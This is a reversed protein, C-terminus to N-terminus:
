TGSHRSRELLQKGREKHYAIRDSLLDDRVVIEDGFELVDPQEESYEPWVPLGDRNPNGAKAFQVWYANMLRSMERDRESVSELDVDLTQMVFAIDDGHAAGPQHDRREEAVYSLYYQWNPRDVNKMHDGLYYAQSLIILDGFVQDAVETEDLGPYLRAKDAAPVLRAMLDPSFGGGIQRGLSAEWSNGGTMYPVAHQRGAAFLVGVHDPIVDGEIVPTFRTDPDLAAILAETTMARLAAVIDDSKDVGARKAYAKGAKEGPVQFGSRKRIHADPALGVSASQSIARHFLGEARPMIMLYNVLAGGASEGFITVNGPDGGFSAINRNVWELAAVLDLLGYNGLPEGAQAESLAPHAFFGFVSLRYNVTVLVVGQGAMAPSNLRPINGSGQVYGGGHIWVMVPLRRGPDADPTWVNLTLCDENMEGLEFWLMEARRQPCFAGYEAAPRVGDWSSPPQTPRWRLEGAPPAAYPIGKFATVDGHRVGQLRGSEIAVITDPGPGSCGVGLLLLCAQAIILLGRDNNSV